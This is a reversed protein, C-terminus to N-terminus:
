QIKRVNKYTINNTHNQYLLSSVYLYLVISEKSLFQFWSVHFDRMHPKAVSFLRVPTAKNEANVPLAFRRPATTTTTGAEGGKGEVEM